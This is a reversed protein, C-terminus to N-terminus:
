ESPTLLHRMREVVAKTNKLETGNEHDFFDYLKALDDPEDVDFTAPLLHLKLGLRRVREITESLVTETSMQIGTFLDHAANMGVLNYGGDDAPALVVDHAHLSQFAEEIWATPIQPCDSSIIVIRGFGEGTLKHFINYLREGLSAGEQPFCLKGDGILPGFPSQAPTYAWLCPREGRAFKEKLDFLFARYLRCAADEGIQGALRTKVEGVEPYKAVVVLAEKTERAFKIM